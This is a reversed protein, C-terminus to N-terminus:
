MIAPVSNWLTIQEKDLIAQIEQIDRQDNTLVVSAGSTLAGMIDYVSLDFCMSSLGIIADDEGIDFKQNIDDLTNSVAEHTIIVGKPTGTSGSTYIVYADDEETNLVSLNDDSLLRIEPELYLQATLVSKIGASKKIQNQRESPHAPDIPVYAGGAKLVAVMNM